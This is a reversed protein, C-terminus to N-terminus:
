RHHWWRIDLPALELHRAVLPEYYMRLDYLM